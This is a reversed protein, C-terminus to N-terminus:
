EHILESTVFCGTWKWAESLKPSRFHVDLHMAKCVLTVLRAMSGDLVTKPPATVVIGGKEVVFFSSTLGETLTLDGDSHVSMITEACFVRRNEELRKRENTWSSDKIHPYKRSYQQIDVEIPALSSLGKNLGFVRCELELEKSDYGIPALLLIIGDRQNSDFCQVTRYIIDRVNNVNAAQYKLNLIQSLGVYSEMLREEHFKLDLVNRDFFPLVSYAGRPSSELFARPSCVVSLTILNTVYFSLKLRGHKRM